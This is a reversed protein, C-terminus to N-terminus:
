RVVRRMGVGKSAEDEWKRCLSALFDGGSPSEETLIEDARTGYFGVASANLLVGERRARGLAQVIGRTAIIRSDILVRKRADTWRGGDVSEGALNVVADAEAVVGVWAGKLDNPSWEVHHSQSAKRTLVRVVDGRERLRVQLASGLFGSGGALVINM